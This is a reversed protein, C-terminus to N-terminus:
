IITASTGAPLPLVLNKLKDELSHTLAMHALAKKTLFIRAAWPVVMYAILLSAIM